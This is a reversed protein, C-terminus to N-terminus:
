CNGFLGGAALTQGGHVKSFQEIWVLAQGGGRGLTRKQDERASATAFRTYQNM